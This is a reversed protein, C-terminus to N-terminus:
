NDKKAYIASLLAQRGIKKWEKHWEGQKAWRAVTKHDLKKAEPFLEKLLRAIEHFSPPTFDFYEYTLGSSIPVQKTQGGIYILFGREAIEKSYAM